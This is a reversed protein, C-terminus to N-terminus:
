KMLESLSGKKGEQVVKEKGKLLNKDKRTEVAFNTAAEVVDTVKEVRVVQIVDNPIVVEDMRQEVRDFENM